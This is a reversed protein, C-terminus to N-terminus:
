KQATNGTYVWGSPGDVFGLPDPQTYRGLTQDVHRHRNYHLVEEVQFWQGPFRANLTASGNLFTLPLAARM